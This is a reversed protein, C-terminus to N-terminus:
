SQIISCHSGYNDCRNQSGCWMARKRRGPWAECVCCGQQLGNDANDQSCAAVLEGAVISELERLGHRSPASSSRGCLGGSLWREFFFFLFTVRRTPISFPRRSLFVSILELFFSVPFHSLSFIIISPYRGGNSILCCLESRNCICAMARSQMQMVTTLSLRDVQVHKAWVDNTPVPGCELPLGLLGHLPNNPAVVVLRSNFLCSCLFGRVPSGGCGLWWSHSSHIGGLVKAGRAGDENSAAGLGEIKQLSARFDNCLWPWSMGVQSWQGRM